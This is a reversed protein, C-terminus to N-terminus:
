AADNQLITEAYRGFCKFPASDAGKPRWSFRPTVKNDSRELFTVGRCESRDLM